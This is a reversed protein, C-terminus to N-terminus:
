FVGGVGLYQPGAVIGASPVVPADLLYLTLAAGGLVVASATLANSWNRLARVQSRAAPDDQGTASLASSFRNFSRQALIGTWAAAVGAGVALGGASWAWAELGTDVSASARAGFQPIARQRRAPVLQSQALYGQYFSSGFPQSFLQTRYSEEVAGRAQNASPQWAQTPKTKRGRTLLLPLEENASRLFWSRNASLALVIPARGDPHLEVHRTGASDELWVHKSWGAPLELYAANPSVIDVIPRNRDLAPPQIVVSPRAAPIEIAVNAAAIYAGLESYELLGDANIDAAGALASRVEHSFVGAEITSWEHTEESKSSALIVGTNPLSRIDEKALYREIAPDFEKDSYGSPAGRGFVMSSAHCADIIVHNFDAKSARLRGLLDTRELYGDQLHLRGQGDSGSEGHGAYIFLLDTRRGAAKAKVFAANAEALAADLSTLTPASARTAQAGHRRATPVDMITLLRTRIGLTELLQLYRVADDDAFRLTPLAPTRPTNVGIVIAIRVPKEGTKAPALCPASMLLVMLLTRML